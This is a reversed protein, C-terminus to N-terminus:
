QPFGLEIQRLDSGDANVCHNLPNQVMEAVSRLRDIRRM